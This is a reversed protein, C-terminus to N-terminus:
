TATDVPLPIDHGTLYDRTLPELIDYKMGRWVHPAINRYADADLPDVGLLRLEAHIKAQLPADAQEILTAKAQAYRAALNQEILANWTDDVVLDKYFEAREAAKVEQVAADLDARTVSSMSFYHMDPPSISLELARRLKVVYALYVEVDDLDPSEAIKRYAIEQLRRQRFLERMIQLADAPRDRYRGLRIDDHVRLKYLDNWTMIARDECSEGAGACIELTSKLLPEREPKSLELLFEAIGARAAKRRYLSTGRLKDLFRIFPVLGVNTGTSEEMTKGIAEWRTAAASEQKDLWYRVAQAMTRSGDIKPQPATAALYYAPGSENPTRAPLGDPSIPNGDLYIDCLTLETIHAPLETLRNNSLDLVTLGQPLSDPLRNLGLGPAHLQMLSRPLAAPLSSLRTRGVRLIELTEPLKPLEGLDDNNTLNLIKLHPPLTDPSIDWFINGALDLHELDPPMNRPLRDFQNHSVRLQRLSGPLAKPWRTLMNNELSLCLLGDPLNDPIETFANHNATLHTLSRPLRHGAISTLHNNSLDLELLRPPLYRLLLSINRTHAAKLTTLNRPLRSWDTIPNNNVILTHVDIPLPPIATLHLESLDLTLGVPQIINRNRLVGILTSRDIGGHCRASQLQLRLKDIIIQRRPRTYVTGPPGVSYGTPDQKIWYAWAAEQKMNLLSRGDHLTGNRMAEAFPNIGDLIGTMNNYIAALEDLAADLSGSDLADVDLNWRTSRVSRALSPRALSSNSGERLVIDPAHGTLDHYAHMARLIARGRPHEQLRVLLEQVAEVRARSPANAIRTLLLQRFERLQRVDPTIAPLPMPIKPRPATSGAPSSAEAAQMGSPGAQAPQGDANASGGPEVRRRAYSSFGSGGGKLGADDARRWIAREQDYSIRHIIVDRRTDDPAIVHWAPRAVDSARDRAIEVHSDAIRAYNGGDWAIVGDDGPRQAALRRLLEPDSVRYRELIDIPLSAYLWGDRDAQLVMGTREGTSTSRTYASAADSGYRLLSLVTDDTGHATVPALPAIEADDTVRTSPKLRWWGDQMAAGRRRAALRQLDNALGPHTARLAAAMSDVDLPRLGHALGNHASLSRLATVIGTRMESLSPAASSARGLAKAAKHHIVRSGPILGRTAGAALRLGSGMMPIAITIMDVGGSLLAAKWDGNRISVFMRRFPIFDLLTDIAGSGPAQPNAGSVADDRQTSTALGEQEFRKRLAPALWTQLDAREGQGLTFLAVRTRLGAPTDQDPSAAPIGFVDEQQRLAWDAPPEDQPMPHISGDATSLFYRHPRGGGALTVIYGAAPIEKKTDGGSDTLVSSNPRIQRPFYQLHAAQIEIRADKFDVGHKAEIWDLWNNLLAITKDTASRTYADFQGSYEPDPSDSTSRRPPRVAALDTVAHSVTFEHKFEEFLFENIQHALTDHDDATAPAENTLSISPGTQKGAKALAALLRVHDARDGHLAHDLILQEGLAALESGTYDSVNWGFQRAVDVGIAYM